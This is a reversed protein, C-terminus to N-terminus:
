LQSRTPAAHVFFSVNNSYKMSHSYTLQVNHWAVWAMLMKSGRVYRLETCLLTFYVTWKHLVKYHLYTKCWNIQMYVGYHVWIYCKYLPYAFPREHHGPGPCQSALVAKSGITGSGPVSQGGVALVTAIKMWAGAWSGCPEELVLTSTATTERVYWRRTSNHTRRRSRIDLSM